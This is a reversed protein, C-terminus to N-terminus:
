QAEPTLIATLKSLKFCRCTCDKAECVREDCDNHEARTHGCWCPGLTDEIAEIAEWMLRAQPTGTHIRCGDEGTEAITGCDDCDEADGHIAGLAQYATLLAANAAERLAEVARLKAQQRKDAELNAIAVSRLHAAVEVPTGNRMFAELGARKMCDKLREIEQAQEQCKRDLMTSNEAECIAVQKVQRAADVLGSEPVNPALVKMATAIEAQQEAVQCLLCQGAIAYQQQHGCALTVYLADLQEQQEAVQATVRSNGELLAFAQCSKCPRYELCGGRTAEPCFEGGLLTRAQEVQATLTAVQATLTALETRRDLAELALRYTALERLVIVNRTEKPASMIAAIELLLKERTPETESM